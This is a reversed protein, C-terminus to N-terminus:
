LLIFTYVCILTYDTNAIIRKIRMLTELISFCVKWRVGKEKEEVERKVKVERKGM